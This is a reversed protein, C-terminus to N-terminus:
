YAIYVVGPAGAGGNGGTLNVGPDASSGSGGGGGSGYNSGATGAAGNGNNNGLAGAGGVGTGAGGGGGNGGRKNAVTANGAGGIAYLSSTGNTGAVNPTASTNAGKGGAGGDTYFLGGYSTTSTSGGPGGTNGSASGRDGFDGGNGGYFTLSFAAGVVTTNGGASGATGNGAPVGAGAVGGAGITITVSEGPTTAVEAMSLVAGSGGAAGGGAGQAVLSAGGGGGGGGGGCALIRIKNVNSPVVFSGSATITQITSTQNTFAQQLSTSLKAFTIGLDKVQITNTAIEITSNDVDVAYQVIGNEDITMIKRSAPLINDFKIEYSSSTATSITVTQSGGFIYKQAFIFAGVGPSQTFSFVKTTNSYVVAAPVGPQGYDGGITGTSAINIGGMSTIQVEVGSGDIFVLEGNNVYIKNSGAPSVTQSNYISSLLNTASFGAFTLNADINIGSTPVPVGSGPTHNHQDIVEMALNLEEAWAPGIEVGVLPLELTMNPTIYTNAM